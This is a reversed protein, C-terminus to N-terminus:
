QERISLCKVELISPNFLHQYENNDVDIRICPCLHFTNKITPPIDEM